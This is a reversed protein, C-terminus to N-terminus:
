LSVPMYRDIVTHVDLHQSKAL